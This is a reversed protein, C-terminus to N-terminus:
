GRPAYVNRQLAALLEEKDVPKALYDNLGQELLNERDGTMAHATLAIIPIGSHRSQHPEQGTDKEQGESVEAEREMERIRKTAQVGDMVPMQIDMLVCDFDHEPLLNLAEEGNEAV